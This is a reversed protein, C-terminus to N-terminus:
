DEDKFPWTIQTKSEFDQIAQDLVIRHKNTMPHDKGFQAYAELYDKEALIANAYSKIDEVEGRIVFNLKQEEENLNAVTNIDKGYIYKLLTKSWAGFAKMWSETLLRPHRTLDIKM